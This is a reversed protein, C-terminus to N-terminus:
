VDLMERALARSREGHREGAVMRAVEALRGREDLREAWVTTRGGRERKGVRVHSTGRAAIQPLHTIVILQQRRAMEQLKEGVVEATTGGIGADIEDLVFTGASTADLLVGKVALLVRSLEGGSAVRSLPRAPEGRNASLLFAVQDAGAEGPREPDETRVEVRFAAGGMALAELGAGIGRELSAAAERRAATLERGLRAAEDRLDGVRHRLEHMRAEGRDLAALREETAAMREILGPLDTRHKRQLDRLLQLRDEIAEAQAADPGVRRAIAGVGRGVEELAYYAEQLQREAEGVEEDLEAFERLRRLAAGVQEVAAGQGAYLEQEVAGLAQRMAEASRLKRAERELREEEGPQPDADRLERLEHGLLELEDARRREAEELERLETEARRLDRVAAGVRRVLGAVGAHGDLISRHNREDLLVASEHQSAFDVLTAGLARLTSAPVPAGDVSARSRGAATVVRQLILPEGEDHELDRDALLAATEDGIDFTAVVRAADAGARVMDASARAGLCLGLAHLIISKGAGTEGSIVNFGEDFRLVVDEIIALNRIRLEVLM